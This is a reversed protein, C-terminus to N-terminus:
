LSENQITFGTREPANTDNKYADRRIRCRVHLM